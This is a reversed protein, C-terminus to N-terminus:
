AEHIELTKVPVPADRHDQRGNHHSHNGVQDDKREGLFVEDTAYAEATDFSSWPPSGVQGAYIFLRIRMERNGVDPRRQSPNIIGVPRDPMPSLEVKEKLVSRRQWRQHVLHNPGM